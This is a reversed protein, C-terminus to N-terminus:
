DGTHPVRASADREALDIDKLYDPDQKRRAQLELYPDVQFIRVGGNLVFPNKKIQDKVTLWNTFDEGLANMLEKHGLKNIDDSVDGRGFTHIIFIDMEEQNIRLKEEIKKLRSEQRRM